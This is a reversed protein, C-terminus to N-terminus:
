KKPKQKDRIAKDQHAMKSKELGVKDKHHRDKMSLEQRKIDNATRLKEIELFDPTGNRNMDIDKQFKFVEIEKGMLDNELERTQMDWEHQMKREEAEKAMQVAAEQQQREMEAQQQQAKERAAEEAKFQRELESSSMGKFLRIIDTIKGQNQLIPLAMQKLTNILEADRISNSTYIGFDANVIEDGMLDLTARSLDDLVFQKVVSRGKWAHQCTQVLSEMVKEWHKAHLHFYIETINSSSAISAQTNGVADYSGVQGERPKSVGIADGIEMDLQQLLQMYSQVYRMTSRDTTAKIKGRQHAGPQDANELSNFIDYDMNDLYYLTKELGLREDIMSTDISFAPGRDRALLQKMKHVAVFYLFQWPKMRDMPAILQANMNSYVVGHYGLKVKFPNDISRFQVPKKRIDVYIDDGIVTGEWVEPIWMWELVSGDDLKYLTKKVGNVNVLTEKKVTSPVKFTESVMDVEEEGDENTFTIFGVKAQSVWEVHTVEWDDDGSFGYSGYTRSAKKNYEYDLSRNHVKMKKDILDGRIGNIGKHNGDLTDKDDDSLSESYRSLIQSTTMNTTNGAFEGDQVFKVEPSKHYFFGLNNIIECIPEGNEIGVFTFEGGALMGHKFTDNKKDKIDLDRILFNLIKQVLIERAEQYETAMYEEVQEPNMIKNVSDQMQNQYEMAIQQQQQMMAPDPAANPDQPQQQQQPPPNNQQYEAMLQAKKEEIRSELYKRMLKTRHAEKEKIGESNIIVARFDSARKLEEGLLVNIKNPTKNYPMIKDKFQGIEIGLPNCEREFDEQNIINNYLQYNSLMNNYEGNENHLYINSQMKLYDVCDKGWQKDDRLKENLSVRQKPMSSTGLSNVSM